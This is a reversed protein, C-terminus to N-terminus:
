LTDRERSKIAAPDTLSRLSLRNVGKLSVSTDEGEEGDDSVLEPPDEDGDEDGLIMSTDWKTHEGSKALHSRIFWGDGGLVVRDEPWKATPTSAERYLGAHRTQFDHPIHFRKQLEDLLASARPAEMSLMNFPEVPIMHSEELSLGLAAAHNESKDDFLYIKEYDNFGLSAAVKRLDKHGNTIYVPAAYPLGLLLSATWTLIAIRDLGIEFLPRARWNILPCKTLLQNYLYHWSEYLSGGSFFVTDAEGEQMIGQEQLIKKFCAHLQQHFPKAIAGKKTYFLIFVPQRRQQVKEVAALMAPNILHQTVEFIDKRINQDKFNNTIASVVRLIDNTDEGMASCQDIDLALVIGEKNAKVQELIHEPISHDRVHKERESLEMAHMAGAVKVDDTPDSQSRRDM